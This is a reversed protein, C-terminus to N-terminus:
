CNLWGTLWHQRRRSSSRHSSRRCGHQLAEELETFPAAEPDEARPRYVPRPEVQESRLRPGEIPAPTLAPPDVRRADTLFVSQSKWTGGGMPMQRRRHVGTTETAKITVIYAFDSWKHRKDWEAQTMERFGEGPYNCLPPLKTAQKV